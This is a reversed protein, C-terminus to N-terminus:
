YVTDGLALITGPLRDLLAATAEDGDQGCTAIDGAALLTVAPPAPRAATAGLVLPLVALAAFRRM